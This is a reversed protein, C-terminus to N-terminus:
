EKSFDDPLKEYFVQLVAKIDNAIRIYPWQKKERLRSYTLHALQKHADKVAEELLKTKLPRISKWPSDRTFYRSARVNDKYPEDKYLFEILIRTHILFSELLANHIVGKGQNDTALINALSWLMWVEYKLRELADKLEELTRKETKAKSM